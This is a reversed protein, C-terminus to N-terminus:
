WLNRTILCVLSFMLFMVIWIILPGDQTQYWTKNLHWWGWLVSKWHKMQAVFLNDITYALFPKVAIYYRAVRCQQSEAIIDVCHTRVVTVARAYHTESIWHSHEKDTRLCETVAHFKFDSSWDVENTHAETKFSHLLEKNM